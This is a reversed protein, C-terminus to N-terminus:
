MIYLICYNALLIYYMYTYIVKKVRLIVEELDYKTVKSNLRGVFLTRETKSEVNHPPEYNKLMARSIAKDHPETDTGDISGAKLPDYDKAYPKWNQLVEENQLIFDIMCFLHREIDSACILFVDNIIIFDFNTYKNIKKNNLIVCKILIQIFYQNSFLM